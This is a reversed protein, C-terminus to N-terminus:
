PSGDGRRRGLIMAVAGGLAMGLAAGLLLGVGPGGGGSGVVAGVTGGLVLWVSMPLIPSRRDDNM